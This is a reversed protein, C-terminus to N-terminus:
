PQPSRLHYISAPALLLSRLTVQLSHRRHGCLLGLLIRSIGQLPLYHIGLNRTESGVRTKQFDELQKALAQVGYLCEFESVRDSPETPGSGFTRFFDFLTACPGDGRPSELLTHFGSNEPDMFNLRVGCGRGGQGSLSKGQLVLWCAPQPDQSTPTISYHSLLQSRLITTSGHDETFQTSRWDSIEHIAAVDANGECLSIDCFGSFGSSAHYTM